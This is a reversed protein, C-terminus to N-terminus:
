GHHPPKDALLRREDAGLVRPGQRMAPSLGDLGLDRRLVRLMSHLQGWSDVLGEPVQHPWPRRDTQCQQRHESLREASWGHGGLWDVVAAPTMPREQPGADLQEGTLAVGLAVLFKPDSM